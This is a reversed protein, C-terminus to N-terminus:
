DYSAFSNIAVRTDDYIEFIRYLKTVEFAYQIKPPVIAIKVNGDNKEAQRQLSVLSGLGASDIYNVEAMEIVFNTVNNSSLHKTSEKFTTAAKADFRGSPAIVTINNHNTTKIRM